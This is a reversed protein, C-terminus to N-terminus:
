EDDPSTSGLEDNPEAAKPSHPRLRDPLRRSPVGYTSEGRQGALHRELQREVDEVALHVARDATEASRRSILHAGLRGLRVQLKVEVQRHAPHAEFTADISSEPYHALRRELAGLQRQLRDKEIQNLLTNGLEITTQVTM